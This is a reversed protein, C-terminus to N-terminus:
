PDARYFQLSAFECPQVMAPQTWFMVNHESYPPHYKGLNCVAFTLFLFTTHLIVVHIWATDFAKLQISEFASLQDMIIVM